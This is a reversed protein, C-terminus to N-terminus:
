EESESFGEFLGGQELRKLLDIVTKVENYFEIATPEIDEPQNIHPIKVDQNTRLSIYLQNEFFYLHLQVKHNTIFHALQRQLSPSFFDPHPGNKSSYLKFYRTFNADVDNHINFNLQHLALLNTGIASMNQYNNRPTVVTNYGFIKPLELKVLLGKFVSQKRNERLTASVKRILIPCRYYEGAILYDWNTVHINGEFIQAAREDVEEFAANENTYHWSAHISGTIFKQINKEFINSFTKKIKSQKRYAYYIYYLGPILIAGLIYQGFPLMSIPYGMTMIFTLINTNRKLRAHKAHLDEQVEVLEDIFLPLFPLEDTIKKPLNAM